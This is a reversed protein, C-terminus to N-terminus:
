YLELLGYEDTPYIESSIAQDYNYSPLWNLLLFGTLFFISVGAVMTVALRQTKAYDKKFLPKAEKILNSVATMKEYEAKCEPCTEIHALLETEDEQTFLKEFKDCSMKKSKKGKVIIVFNKM